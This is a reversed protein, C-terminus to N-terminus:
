ALMPASTLLKKLTQFAEECNSSWVYKVNKKMLSTMPKATKSFDKIYRRYYGALGLFSRIETVTEPQKWNLVDKVESPDVAVGKESLIHGLFSMEKLWFACKSFKAYLKHERLWNLVIRLHEEHEKESKTYILIDDIFVVVFKDLENMFVLNIIYMFFAPANTLGFSMVLYEYLGYRTLFTTKPIDKEKIKIQYYGSRLDIKSFVKAGALQDFLIDIHPLPYKNKITVANLPRYDVCLRKGGRDKKEVFLALCGWLSSSPRIFWKDLQEQLQVNLERLEDPATRYPRQSVPATGPVLEIAFEVDRDPPLKVNKMLSTMPKATKSFDKIFRRYYGTLGLFRRIETVTEPQKWNLVDKVESPDVAVGKESLIRGLFSVEKLWFACKSFKAYLKHERLWNLVIRLHEEHEKESKTYILIDDIFVVVFKDLENMFVSNMIYMFFAPANTLGFSMVLYEYLGYRTLFATKSIDKERIKIQYYGSRLDIKSFVKAGALQDFLIDIHPLPYKNKITVANLPRYDVCLRKGSNVASLCALDKYQNGQYKKEVFLALCGWPSSSPRIFGEDLQEQLQVKLEKLEDPATRYPRQSVPATGPVLEIAFKVDRDPPLKHILLHIHMTKGSRRSKMQVTRSTIDLLVNHEKMWDMGLIIDIGQNPLVVPDVYFDEISLRHEMDIAADVLETFSDYRRGLHTLLTPDFGELLRAARRSDADVDEPSYQSLRIFAQMYELVSMDGQQLARFERQKLEILSPPLYHARFAARFEDWSVQHGAPQMALFSACWAGSPGHLCQAAFRAKQQETLQPLLSFKSEIIHLWDDADLPDTATTFVPPQLAAFETYSIEQPNRWQQEQVLMDIIQGQQAVLAALEPPCQAGHAAGQASTEPPTVMVM